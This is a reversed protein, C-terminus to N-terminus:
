GSWIRRALRGGPLRRILGALELALLGEQWSEEAGPWLERLRDRSVGELDLRDMIWCAASGSIPEPFNTKMERLPDPRGLVRTVDDVSELLHAGERLLHHCGRSTDLDVPGPVAFVERDYDLALMATLMAGSKRPAEVVIVGQVMGAILRNRRPFHHKLPPTGPPFETLSCGEVELRGRLGRHASPYMRDIGTAMVGVSRGQVSLAGRHAEGDIGLALGSVIVWGHAALEASIARAVALGRATARRTGVIAISPESLIPLAGRAHIEAPPDNMQGWLKPWHPHDPKLHHEEGQPVGVNTRHRTM